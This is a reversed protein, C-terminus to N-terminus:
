TANPFEITFTSGKGVESHVNITGKHATVILKAAYLGIGTGAYDYVMTSTGRHFKTFLKDLENKPIGTGTDSVTITTKDPGHHLSFTVTGGSSTFKIANDLLNRLAGRLHVESMSVSSDEPDIKWVLTVGKDKATHTFEVELGSLLKSVLTPKLTLVAEGNEISAITLMDEAFVGLSKVSSEIAEIMQQTEVSEAAIDSTKLLEVNGNIISLPTRLNHSSIMIFENKLQDVEQLKQIDGKLTNAMQNVSRSLDGIEDNRDAGIQQDYRGHSIILALQSVHEIPQLFFRRMLVYIAIATFLLGIFAFVVIDVEEATIDKSLETSSVTYAISFPHGDTTDFYPQVVQTILGDSQITYAPTFSNVDSANVKFNHSSNQQFEISGDLGVIGINSINTDLVSFQMMQGDIRQTGSQKYVTYTSGIPTAALSAFAKTERNLDNVQSTGVNRVLFVAVTAFVVILIVSILLIFRARLGFRM